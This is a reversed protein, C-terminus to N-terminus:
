PPMAPRPQLRPLDPLGRRRLTPPRCALPAGPTHMNRGLMAEAPWGLMECAARNIFTCRGELDIGYIGEGTSDLLLALRRDASGLDAAPAPPCAAQTM